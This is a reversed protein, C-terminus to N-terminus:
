PLIKTVMRLVCWTDDVDFPFYKKVVQPNLVGGVKSAKGSVFSYEMDRALSVIEMIFLRANEYGVM